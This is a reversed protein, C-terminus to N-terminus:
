STTSPQPTCSAPTPREAPQETDTGPRSRKPEGPKQLPEAVARKKPPADRNEHDAASGARLDRLWDAPADRPIRRVFQPLSHEGLNIESVQHMRQRLDQNEKLTKELLRRTEAEKELGKEYEDLLALMAYAVSIGRVDEESIAEPEGSRLGEQSKAHEPAPPATTIESRFYMVARIDNISGLFLEQRSDAANWLVYRRAQESAHRFPPAERIKELLVRMRSPKDVRMLAELVSAPM